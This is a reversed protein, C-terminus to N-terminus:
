EPRVRDADALTRARVDYREVVMGIPNFTLPSPTQLATTQLPRYSIHVVASWYSRRVELSEQRDIAVYDITYAEGASVPTVAEIHIDRTLGEEFFIRRPSRPDNDDWSRMMMRRQPESSTARIFEFRNPTTTFDITERSVVYQALLDETMQDRTSRSIEGPELRVIQAARDDFRVFQTEVRVTPLMVIILTVLGLNAATMLGFSGIALRALVEMRRVYRKDDYEPNTSTVTADELSLTADGRMDDPETLTLKTKSSLAM